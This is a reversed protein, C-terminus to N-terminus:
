SGGVNIREFTTSFASSANRKYGSSIDANTFLIAFHGCGFVWNLTINKQRAIKLKM